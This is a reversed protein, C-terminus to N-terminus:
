PAPADSVSALTISIGACDAGEAPSPPSELGAVGRARLASVVEDFRSRPVVLLYPRGDAAGRWESNGGVDVALRALERAAAEIDAVQWRARLGSDSWHEACRSVPETMGGLAGAAPAPAAPVPAAAVKSAARESIEGTAADVAADESKQKETPAFSSPAPLDKADHDPAVGPAQDLEEEVIKEPETRPASERTPAADQRPSPVNAKKLEDLPATEERPQPPPPVALRGQRWQIAVLIGIAGITAAITTPVVFRRTRSRASPAADLSRGIRAQLDVPVPPVEEDALARSLRRLSELEGRCDACEALHRDIAARAEVGLEDDLYDSLEDLPHGPRRDSM